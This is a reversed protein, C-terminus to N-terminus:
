GVPRQKFVGRIAGYNFYLCITQCAMNYMSGAIKVFVLSKTNRFFPAVLSNTTATAVSLNSYNGCVIQDGTGPGEILVNAGPIERLAQYLVKESKEGQERELGQGLIAQV